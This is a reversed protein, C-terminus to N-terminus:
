RTPVLGNLVESIASRAVPRGFDSKSLSLVGHALALLVRATDRTAVSQRIEGNAKGRDVAIRLYSDVLRFHGAVLADIQRDRGSLEVQSNVMLCGRRRTSVPADVMAALFAQIGRLGGPDLLRNLAGTEADESYSTLCRLYLSKKDGFTDYISVRNIGMRRELMSISAADYGEEWFVDRAMRLASNPDFSKHRPM